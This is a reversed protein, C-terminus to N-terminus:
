VDGAAVIESLDVSEFTVNRAEFLQSGFENRYDEHLALTFEGPPYVGFQVTYTDNAPGPLATNWAYHMGDSLNIHPLLIVKDADGTRDNTVLAFLNIYGVFGGAPVGMISTIEETWGALVELHLDAAEQSLFQAAPTISGSTAAIFTMNIGPEIVESGLVLEEEEQGLTTPTGAALLALALALLIGRFLSM